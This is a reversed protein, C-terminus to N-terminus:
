PLKELLPKLLAALQRFGLWGILLAVLFGAGGVILGAFGPGVLTALAMVSGVILGIAALLALTAAGGILVLAVKAAALEPKARAKALAAEAHVLALADYALQRALDPLPTRETATLHQNAM